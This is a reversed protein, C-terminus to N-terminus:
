KQCLAVFQKVGELIRQLSLLVLIMATLREAAALGNTGLLKKLTEAKLLVTVSAAWAIVIASLMTWISPETLAYLMITALLAPGAILPIALPILFPEGPPLNARVSSAPFFLIKVAILFLLVGSAIRATVETVSLQSLIFEGLFNFFVMAVLALGMERFVIYRQRSPELGKVLSLYASVNGLPDMIFFLTLILTLSM